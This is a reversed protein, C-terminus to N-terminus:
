RKSMEAVFEEIDQDVEGVSRSTPALTAKTVPKGAADRGDDVWWENTGHSDKSNQNQFRKGECFRGKYKRLAFGIQRVSPLANDKTPFVTRLNEAACDMESVDSSSGSREFAALKSCFFGVTMERKQSIKAVQEWTTILIRLNASDEDAHEMLQARTDGPDPLGVWRVVNRILKSWGEFSGWSPLGHNPRGARCYAALITLAERLFKLRNTLVWSKLNPFKFESEARMEPNELMSELRIHCVRRATDASLTANNGTAYWTALLSLRPTKNTGLLRGSWETSTLASDIASNGLKGEVNDLLVLKEGSLAIATITKSMEEPDHAYQSMAFGRGAVILSVIEALLGKGSGRVNADILFLPAPGSFAPRALPTLLSALWAAKHSESVFPFDSVLDTLSKSALKADDLTPTAPIPEFEDSPVYLVGTEADYGAEQCVTGNPRLFPAEAVQELPRVGDWPAARSHIQEVLWAPPPVKTKGEKKQVVLNVHRTIEARLAPLPM